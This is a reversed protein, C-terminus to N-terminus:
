TPTLSPDGGFLHSYTADRALRNEADIITDFWRLRVPKTSPIKGAPTDVCIARLNLTDDRMLRIPAM